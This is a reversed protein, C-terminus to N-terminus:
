RVEKYFSQSLTTNYVSGGDDWEATISIYVFDLSKEVTVLCKYPRGEVCPDTVRNSVTNYFSDPDTDREVKYNTLMKKIIAQAEDKQRQFTVVRTSRTILDSIGILVLGIIGVAVVIEILMQGAHKAILKIKYMTKIQSREM